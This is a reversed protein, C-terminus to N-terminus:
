RKNRSKVSSKRPLSDDSPRGVSTPDDLVLPWPISYVKVANFSPYLESYDLYLPEPAPPSFIMGKDNTTMTNM